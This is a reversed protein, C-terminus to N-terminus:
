ASQFINIFILNISSKLLLGFKERHPHSRLSVFTASTYQQAIVCTAPRDCQPRHHKFRNEPTQIEHPSVKIYVCRQSYM